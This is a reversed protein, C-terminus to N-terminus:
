DEVQTTPEPAEAVTPEGTCGSDACSHDDDPFEANLADVDAQAEALEQATFPQAEAALRRLETAVELEVACNQCDSNFRAAVDAAERLVAARDALPKLEKLVADALPQARHLRAEEATATLPLGGPTNHQPGGYRPKLADALARAIRDRLETM